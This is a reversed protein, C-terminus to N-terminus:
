LADLRPKIQEVPERVGLQLLLCVLYFSSPDSFDFTHM